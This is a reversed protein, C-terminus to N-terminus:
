QKEFELISFPDFLGSFPDLIDFMIVPRMNSFADAVLKPTRMFMLPYHVVLQLTTILGSLQAMSTSDESVFKDIVFGGIFSLIMGLSMSEATAIAVETSKDFVEPVNYMVENSRYGNELELVQRKSGATLGRTSIQRIKIINKFKTEQLYEPETM